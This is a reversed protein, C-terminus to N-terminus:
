GAAAAIESRWERAEWAAEAEENRENGESTDFVREKVHSNGEESVAGRRQREYKKCWSIRRM